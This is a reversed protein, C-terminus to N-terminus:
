AALKLQATFRNEHTLNVNSAFHLLESAVSRTEAHVTVRVGSGKLPRAEETFVGDDSVIVIEEFRDTIRERTLVNMLAIDAGDHGRKMVIRASAWAHAPFADCSHSVGIVVLDKDGISYHEVIFASNRAVDEEIIIGSGVANEIDVVFIRRQSNLETRKNTTIM